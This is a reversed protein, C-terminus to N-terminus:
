GGRQGDGRLRLDANRYINTCLRGPPGGAIVVHFIIINRINLAIIIDRRVLKNIQVVTVPCKGIFQRGVIAIIVQIMTVFYHDVFRLSIQMKVFMAPIIVMEAALRMSLLEDAIIMFVPVSVMPMILVLGIFFPSVLRFAVSVPAFIM